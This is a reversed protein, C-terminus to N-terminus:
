TTRRHLLASVTVAVILVAGYFVDEVWGTYGLLQLGLVGTALLYVGIFTGIPNFQGPRVAAMGLFVATIGAPLSLVSSTPDYGGVSAVLLVGGIGSFLGSVVYSGFRIRNVRVGALRAVERNAGVFALHRGLPTFRLVYAFALAAALGYYFSVPLGLIEANALKAFAPSLGSVTSLNALMLALGLLINAMGLTVVIRDVGVRVVLFGNIAGALVTAAIAVASAAIANWHHEVVLVPVLTAALGQMSAFSLDFEGVLLTALLGLSIFVLAEQSGFITQVTGVQLFQHPEVIAFTGAMALWVGLIAWRSTFSPGYRVPGSRGGTRTLDPLVGNLRGSTLAPEAAPATPPPETIPDTM